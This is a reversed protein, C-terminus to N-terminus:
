DFKCSCHLLILIAPAPSEIEFCHRKRSREVHRTTFPRAVGARVVVFLYPIHRGVSRNQHTCKSM